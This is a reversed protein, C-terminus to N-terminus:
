IRAIGCPDDAWSEGNSLLLPLEKLEKATVWIGQHEARMFQQDIMEELVQLFTDYFGQSNFIIIPGNFLGMQKLTIAETLEELTGIGGPLALVADSIELMQKKREHMSEVVVMDKIKPNGWGVEQMFAPIIGTISGEKELVGDALAGMLGIGGGGFCVRYKLSALLRGAERAEDFYHPPIKSSSACFVSVTKM